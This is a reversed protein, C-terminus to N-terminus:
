LSSPSMSRSASASARRYREAPAAGVRGRVGTPTRGLLRRFTRTMHAHDFFGVDCAVKSLDSAGNSIRDLAARVRLETRYGSLTIGMGARFLRSLHHPSNGVVTAVSPLDGDEAFHWALYELAADVIERQRSSLPDSTALGLFRSVIADVREDLELATLDGDSAAVAMRRIELDADLPIRAIRRAFRDTRARTFPEAARDSLVIEFSRDGCGAPHATRHVDGRNMLLAM